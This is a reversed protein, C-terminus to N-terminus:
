FVVCFFSRGSSLFEVHSNLYPPKTSPFYSFHFDWKWTMIKWLEHLIPSSVLSLGIKSTFYAIDMTLIRLEVWVLSLFCTQFFWCCVTLWESTKRLLLCLLKTIFFSHFSLNIEKSFPICLASTTINRFNPYTSMNKWYGSISYRKCVLCLVFCLMCSNVRICVVVMTGSNAESSQHTSQLHSVTIRFQYNIMCVSSVYINIYFQLKMKLTNWDTWNLETAWNHGVRQSGMFRLVGPRGTWWWSGSNLWVWTWQTPSIM